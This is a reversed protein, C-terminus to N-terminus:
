LHGTTLETLYQIGELSSIGMGSIDAKQTHRIEDESLIGDCDADVTKLVWNQLHKDPFAYKIIIADSVFELNLTVKTKTTVTEGYNFELSGETVDKYSIGLEDLDLVGDKLIEKTLDDPINYSDSLNIILGSVDNVNYGLKEFNIEGNYVKASVVTDNEKEALSYHLTANGSFLLAVALVGFYVLWKKIIKTRIKFVVKRKVSTIFKM